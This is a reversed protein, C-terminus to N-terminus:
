GPVCVRVSGALSIGSPLGWVWRLGRARHGPGGSTAEITAPTTDSRMLTSTPTPHDPRRPNRRQAEVDKPAGVLALDERTRDAAALLRAAIGPEDGAALMAALELAM